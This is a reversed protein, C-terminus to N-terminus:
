GDKPRPPYGRTAPSTRRGADVPRGPLAADTAPRVVPGVFPEGHRYGCRRCFPVDPWVPFGCQVCSDFEHMSTSAGSADSVLAWREVIAMPGEGPDDIGLAQLQALRKSAAPDTEVTPPQALAKASAKTRGNRKAGPDQSAKRQAATSSKKSASPGVVDALVNTRSRATKGNTGFQDASAVPERRSATAEPATERREKAPTSTTQDRGQSRDVAISTKARRTPRTTAAATRAAAPRDWPATVTPEAAGSRGSRSSTAVSPRALTAAVLSRRRLAPSVVGGPARPAASPPAAVSVPVPVHPFEVAGAPVAIPIAALYNGSPGEAALLRGLVLPVPSAARGPQHGAAMPGRGARSLATPLLHPHVVRVLWLALGVAVLAVLLMDLYSLVRIVVEHGPSVAVDAVPAWGPADAVSMRYTGRALSPVALQGYVDTDIRVVKGDPYYVDVSRGSPFGFFADRPQLHASFLMLKIEWPGDGAFGLNQQGEEVVNSGDVEVAEVAYRVAESALGDPGQVVRSAMLLRQSGDPYTSADGLSSRLTISTVRAPDIPNGDADMFSQSAPLHIDFGAELPGALPIHIAVQRGRLGTSWGSFVARQGDGRYEDDLVSLQHDGGLAVPLRAIGDAGATFRKGDLKFVMGPLTPVTEVALEFPLVSLVLEDSGGLFAGTVGAYTAVLPYEGPSLGQTLRFVAAGATDTRIVQVPQGPITLEIPSNAVPAGSELRLDVIVTVPSGIVVPDVPRISVETAAEGQARAPAVALLVAIAAGTLVIASHTLNARRLRPAQCTITNLSGERPSGEPGAM